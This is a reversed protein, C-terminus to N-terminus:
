GRRRVEEGAMDEHMHEDSPGEEDDSSLDDGESGSEDESEDSDNLDVEVDILQGMINDM